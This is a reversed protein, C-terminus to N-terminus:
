CRRRRCRRGGSDAGDAPPARAAGSPPAYQVLDKLNLDRLPKSALKTLEEESAASWEALTQQPAAPASTQYCRWLPRLRAIRM